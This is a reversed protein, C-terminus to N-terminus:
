GMTSALMSEEEMEVALERGFGRGAYLPAAFVLEGDSVLGDDVVSVIEGILVAGVSSRSEM